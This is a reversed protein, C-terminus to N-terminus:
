YGEQLAEARRAGVANPRIYEINGAWGGNGVAEFKGNWDAPLWVEMEIHSDSSPALVAAVRCHAPLMVSVGEGQGPPRFPGAAVSEAAIITTNPLSLSKLRECPTQALAVTVAWLLLALGFLAFSIIM